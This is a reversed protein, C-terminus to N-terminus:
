GIDHHDAGPEGTQRDGEVQQFMTGPAPDDDEFGPVGPEARASPVRTAHERQADQGPQHGAARARMVGALHLPEQVVADVGPHPFQAVRM